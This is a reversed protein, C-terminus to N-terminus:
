LFDYRANLYYQRGAGPTYTWYDRSYAAMAGSYIVPASRSTYYKKDFLNNIGASVKLGKFKYQAGVDALTYSNYYNGSADESKGKVTLDSTVSFNDNVKYRAGFNAQVSPVYPVKSGVGDKRKASIFQANEYLHLKDDLLDQELGIEVGKRDTKDLNIYHSGSCNPDSQCHGSASPNTNVIEGKNRNYYVAASIKSWNLNDKIGLEYTTYTESDLDPNDFYETVGNERKYSRYNLPSPSTTGRTFKAYAEGTDSYTITPRLEVLYDKTTGQTHLEHKVRDITVPYDYVYDGKEYRVGSNMTFIDNFKHKSSLYVADTDKEYISVNGSSYNTQGNHHTHVLGVKAYSNDAYKYKGALKGDWVTDAFTSSIGNTTQYKRGDLKAELEFTDAFNGKYEISGQPQRYTSKDGSPPTNYKRNHAYIEEPIGASGGHRNDRYNSLSATIKHDENINFYLKGNIRSSHSTSYDQFGDSDAFDGNIAVAFHEGFGKAAGFNLSQGNNTSGYDYLKTGLSLKDGTFGKTVVNVAGGRTGSGYEVAGGGPMIEIHDIEEVGVYSDLSRSGHGGMQHMEIGDVMTKVSTTADSGQGRIDIATGAANISVGPTRRLADSFNTYGAEQLKEGAVVNVNTLNNDSKIPEYYNYGNATKTGTVTITGLEGSNRSSSSNGAKYDTTDVFTNNTSVNASPANSYNAYNSANTTNTAYNGDFAQYETVNQAVATNAGIVAILASLKRKFFM